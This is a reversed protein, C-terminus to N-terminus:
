SLSFSSVIELQSQAIKQKLSIELTLTRHETKLHVLRERLSGTAATIYERRAKPIDNNEVNIRDSIGQICDEIQQVFTTSAVVRM